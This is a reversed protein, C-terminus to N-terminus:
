DVWQCNGLRSVYTRLFPQATLARDIWPRTKRTVRQGFQRIFRTNGGTVGLCVQGLHPLKNGLGGGFYVTTHPKGVQNAQMIPKLADTGVSLPETCWFEHAFFGRHQLANLSFLGPSLPKKM